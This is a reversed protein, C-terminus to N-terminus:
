LDNFILYLGCPLRQHNDEEKDDDLYSVSLTTPLKFNKNIYEDLDLSNNNTGNLQKILDNLNKIQQSLNLNISLNHTEMSSNDADFNIIDGHAYAIGYWIVGFIVWSLVFSLIYIVSHWRWKM